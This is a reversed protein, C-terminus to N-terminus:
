THVYPLPPKIIHAGGLHQVNAPPPARVAAGTCNIFPNHTRSCISYHFVPLQPVATPGPVTGTITSPLGRAAWRESTVVLVVTGNQVLLVLQYELILM